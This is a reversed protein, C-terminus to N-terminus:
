HRAAPVKSSYYKALNEFNKDEPYIRHQERVFELTAELEEPDTEMNKLLHRSILSPLPQLDHRRAFDYLGMLQDLTYAKKNAEFPDGGFYIHNLIIDQFSEADIGDLKLQSTCAESMNGRLAKDLSCSSLALALKHAKVSRGSPDIFTFDCHPGQAKFDAQIKTMLGLVKSVDVAEPEPFPLNQLKKLDWKFNLLVASQGSRPESSLWSKGEWTCEHMKVKGEQSDLVIGYPELLGKLAPIFLHDITHSAMQEDYISSDDGSYQNENKRDKFHTSHFKGAEIKAGPKCFCTADSKPISCGYSSSAHRLIPLTLESKQAAMEQKLWKRVDEVGQYLSATRQHLDDRLAWLKRHEDRRIEVGQNNSHDFGNDSYHSYSAKGFEVRFQGGLTRLTISKEGLGHAAEEKTMLHHKVVLEKLQAGLAEDFAEKFKEKDELVDELKYAGGAFVLSPAIPSVVLALLVGTAMAAKKYGVLCKFRTMM